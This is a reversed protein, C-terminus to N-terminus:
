AAPTLLTGAHVRSSCAFGDFLTKLDLNHPPVIVGHSGIRIAAVSQAVSPAYRALIRAARDKMNRLSNGKPPLVYGWRPDHATLLLLQHALSVAARQRPPICVRRDGIEWISNFADVPRFPVPKFARLRAERLAQVTTDIWATGPHRRQLDALHAIAANLHHLDM